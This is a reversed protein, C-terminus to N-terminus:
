VRQKIKKAIQDLAKKLAEHWGDESIEEGGLKFSKRYAGGHSSSEGKGTAVCIIKGTSTDVIRVTISVRVLLNSTFMSERHTVTMNTIYGYILYDLKQDFLTMAEAPNGFDMQFNVEAIRDSTTKETKDICLLGASLMDHNGQWFDVFISQAHALPTERLQTLDIYDGLNINKDKIRSDIGVIGIIYHEASCTPSVFFFITLTLVLLDAARKWFKKEKM